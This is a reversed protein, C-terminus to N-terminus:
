QRFTLTALGAPQVAVVERRDDQSGVVRIRSGFLAVGGGAGEGPLLPPSLCAQGGGGGRSPARPLPSCAALFAGGESGVCSLVRCHCVRPHVQGGLDVGQRDAAVVVFTNGRHAQVHGGRAAGGRPREVQGQDDVAAARHAAVLDLGGAGG